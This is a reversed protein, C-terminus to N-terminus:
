CEYTSVNNGVLDMLEKHTQLGVHESNIFQKIAVMIGGRKRYGAHIKGFGGKSFSGGVFSYGKELKVVHTVTSPARPANIDGKRRSHKHVQWMYSTFHADHYPFESPPAFEYLYLCDGVGMTDGDELIYPTGRKVDDRGLTVLREAEVMLQECTTSFSLLFHNAAVRRDSWEQTPPALLLDLVGQKSKRYGTGARWGRRENHPAQYPAQPLPKDSTTDLAKESAKAPPEMGFNFAYYGDWLRPKKVSRKLADGSNNEEDGSGDEDSVKGLLRMSRAAHAYKPRNNWIFDVAESFARKALPSRPVLSAFDSTLQPVPFFAKVIRINEESDSM